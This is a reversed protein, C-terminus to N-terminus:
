VDDIIRLSMDYRDRFFAKAARKANGKTAYQESHCLIRGSKKIRWYWSSKKKRVELYSKM